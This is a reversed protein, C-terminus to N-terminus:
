HSVMVKFTSVRETGIQIIYFGNAIGSTNIKVESSNINTNEYVINGFLDFLKITGPLREGGSMNIYLWDNKPTQTIEFNEDAEDDVNTAKIVNARVEIFYENDEGGRWFGVSDAFQGAKSAKFKIGVKTEGGPVFVLNPSDSFEFGMNGNKFTLEDNFQEENDSSNNITVEGTLENGVKLTGFDIDSSFTYKPSYYNVIITTDNGRRDSFTAVLRADKKTDIVSASWSTYSDNGPIFDIYDFEYNESMDPHFVIMSLNSRDDGPPMDEVMGGSIKGNGYVSFKPDPPEPDAKSLDGIAASAPFGYSDFPAFGYAYAAIPENSKLKYVGDDPLKITTVNYYVDNVPQSFRKTSMLNLEYVKRWTFQGDIVQAFLLDDPINGSPSQYIVNVYNESFGFGSKIGPTNFIIEKQYQELPTLAMQFPDSNVYDDIQGTNYQMIYIPKDGSFVIPRPANVDARMRLWGDTEIGSSKKLKVIPINDSYITTEPERALIKIISNKIRNVIPTYHYEKGWASSPIEMETLFDCYPTNEPVYACYNSSIVSVPKTASITSGTLDARQGASSVLFVDGKNLTVTRTEGPIMGGSTRTSNTGGLTFSVETQDFASVIGSYSPLYQIGYDSVDAWSAVTYEKGLASVPIGLYGDSTFKFRTIGYCIIPYDAYVHIGYGRFVTDPLPVERDTKRYCQGIIPPFTFEIIDNPVTMKEMRFDKGPVEVTVMTAIASSVYLKLANGANETEWCPNFTLWFEQGANGAGLLEPLQEKFETLNFEKAFVNTTNLVTFVLALLLSFLKANM